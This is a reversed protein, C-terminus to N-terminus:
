IKHLFLDYANLPVSQRADGLHRVPAAHFVGADGDEAFFPFQGQGLRAHLVHGSLFLGGYALQEVVGALRNGFRQVGLQHFDLGPRVPLGNGAHIQGQRRTGERQSAQMRQGDDPVLGDANQAAHPERQRIARFDLVLEMAKVGQVGRRVVRGAIFLVRKVKIGALQQARM